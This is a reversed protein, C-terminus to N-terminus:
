LKYPEIQALPTLSGDAYAYLKILLAM